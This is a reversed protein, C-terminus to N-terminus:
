LRSPITTLPKWFNQSDFPKLLFDTVGLQFAHLRPEDNDYATITIFGSKGAGAKEQFESYPPDDDIVLVYAKDATKRCCGSTDGEKRAFVRAFPATIKFYKYLKM